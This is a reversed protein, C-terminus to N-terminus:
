ELVEMIDKIEKEIKRLKEISYRNLIITDKLVGPNESEAIGKLDELIKKSRTLIRNELSANKAILSFIYPLVLQELMLLDHEESDMVIINFMPFIERIVNISGDTSIDDVFVINRFNENMFTNPGFLPHISIIQKKFELIPSKVSSIEVIKEKESCNRIIKIAEGVPVSLFALDANRIANNINDGNEAKIIDYKEFLKLLVSGFRGKYGVVAIKM